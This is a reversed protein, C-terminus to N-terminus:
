VRRATTRRKNRISQNVIIKEEVAIIKPAEIEKLKKSAIIQAQRDMNIKVAEYNANVHYIACLAYYMLDIAENHDTRKPKEYVIYSVLGTYKTVAVETTLQKFFEDDCYDEAFHIYRPGPLENKLMAFLEHKTANAGLHLLKTRNQDVWTYSRPLMSVGHGGKGKVAWIGLKDRKRTFSYVAQSRYGTDIFHRLMPVKVGDKRM